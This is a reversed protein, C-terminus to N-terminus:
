PNLMRYLSACAADNAFEAAEVMVASGTRRMAERVMDARRKDDNPDICIRGLQSTDLPERKPWRPDAAARSMALESRREDDNAPM